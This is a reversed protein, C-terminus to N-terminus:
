RQTRRRARRRAKSLADMVSPAESETELAPVSPPRGLAPEPASEAVPNDSDSPGASTGIRQRGGHRTSLQSLLATRREFIELLLLGIGCLVLWRTLAVRQPRRPFARWVDSVDLHQRGGTVTALSELTLRARDSDMPAFEPSYPLRVPPLTKSGRGPIVVATLVVEDGAVPISAELTAPDVWRMTSREAAPPQRPLGRLVSVEPLGVFPDNSREPDLHLRVRLQGGILDGTVLLDGLGDQEGATWRALSTLLQNFNPWDALPNAYEGAVEATYVLTRGLGVQWSAVIPAQTEDTTVAALNAEPRLYTLNYGGVPPAPSERPNSVQGTLRSLGVTRRWPTPEEVFASRAVIFTDQAFLRPLEDASETFFVRGGGRTAIDRLLDADPDTSRGLGVVSITIGAARSTAILERYAGPNEADAADAFLLIHRTGAEARLLQEAAAHLAEYVFIGGGMSGIRLIMQRTAPVKDVPALPAVLHPTSDVAVVGFEDLPSLLELVEATALNALDMKTRGGAVPAAMSGSRDLAVVMALALKRHEQRLEMSVPLIPDLPSRFYGGPGFSRPGGTLMLGGGGSRVWSALHHQALEPGLEAGLDGASVGELIVASVGALTELGASFLDPQVSRMDLGGARLLTSLGVAPQNTVVLLPRPGEVGVLFRAENNEPVPDESSAQVTLRFSAVGPEVVLDRFTFRNSGAQVQRRGSVLTEDGRLLEVSVEQNVPSHVWATILFGEGPTVEGPADVEEIAVDGAQSRELLRYDIAVGRLAARGGIARPDDGTFRGDSLVLVRSAEGAPALALATKLASALDSRDDGVAASFAKLPEEGPLQEVASRGGFSVVALRDGGSRSSELRGLIELETATADVPMSASRDAIVVLTGSRRPLRLVPECLAVILLLSSTGRLWRRWGPPPPWRRWALAWPVVLILWLPRLLIM